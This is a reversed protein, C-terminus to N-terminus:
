GVDPFDKQLQDAFVEWIVVAKALYEVAVCEFYTVTTCRIHFCNNSAVIFGKAIWLLIGSWRAIAAM